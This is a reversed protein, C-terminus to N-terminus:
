ESPAPPPRIGLSTLIAHRPGEEQVIENLLEPWTLRGRRVAEDLTYSLPSHPESRRFYAAIETLARLADERTAVAGARGPAAGAAEAGAEQAGVPGADEAETDAPAFRATLDVIRALLDRVQSTSPGDAGAREDLAAAMAKWSDHAAVADQRLV